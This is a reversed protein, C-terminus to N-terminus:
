LESHTLQVLAGGLARGGDRGVLLDAGEPPIGVTGPAAGAVLTLRATLSGRGNFVTVLDGDALGRREAEVAALTAVPFVRGEASPHDEALRVPLSGVVASLPYSEALTPSAIPGEGLEQHRPAPPASDGPPPPACRAELGSLMGDELEFWREPWGVRHALTRWLRWPDPVERPPPAAAEAFWSQAPQRLGVAGRREFPCPVPLVLDAAAPLSGWRDALAIVRDAGQLWERLGRGGPRRELRACGEVVVVCREAGGEGGLPRDVALLERPPPAELPVELAASPDPVPEPVVMSATAAEALRAVAEVAHPPDPHWGLGGGVLVVARRAGGLWAALRELDEAPVGCVPAARAAPWPRAWEPAGDAALAETVAAALVVDTGPRLALHTEAECALETRRPDVVVVGAGRSRAQELARRLPRSGIEPDAGWVLVADGRALEELGAGGGDGRRGAARRAVEEVPPIWRVWVAGPVLGAVRRALADQL